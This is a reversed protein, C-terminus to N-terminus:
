EPGGWSIAAVRLRRLPANGANGGGLRKARSAFRLKPSIRDGASSPVSLFLERLGELLILVPKREASFIYTTHSTLTVNWELPGSIGM